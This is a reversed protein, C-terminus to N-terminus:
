ELKIPKRKCFSTVNCRQYQLALCDCSTKEIMSVLVLIDKQLDGTKLCSNRETLRM